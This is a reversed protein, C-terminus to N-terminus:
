GPLLRDAALLLAGVVALGLGLAPVLMALPLGLVLCTIGWATVDQIPERRGQGIRAAIVADLSFRGGGQLVLPLLMVLFILPLKFNGFGKDTIAYGKALEALSSWDSPWHVAAIAVITLVFLSFAFFRTGLGLLLAVAAILEAWTAMAWSLDVPVRDFPFPFNEQIGAFWNQGRFKELGAEWFEWALILRLGLPALWLGVGDLRESLAHWREAISTRM